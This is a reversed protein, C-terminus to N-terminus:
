GTILHGRIADQINHEHITRLWAIFQGEERGDFQPLRGLVSLCTLQSLFFRNKRFDARLQRLLIPWGLNGLWEAFTPFHRALFGRAAPSSENSSM